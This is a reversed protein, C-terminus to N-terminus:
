ATPSSPAPSPPARIIVSVAMSASTPSRASKFSNYSLAAGNVRSENVANFIRPILLAALVAIIALVGIMEILTFGSRRRVNIQSVKM